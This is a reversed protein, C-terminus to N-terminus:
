AMHPADRRQAAPTRMTTGEMGSGMRCDRCSRCVIVFNWRVVCHARINKVRRCCVYVLRQWTAAMDAQQFDDVEFAISGCKRSLLEGPVIDTSCHTQIGKSCLKSFFDHRRVAKLYLV